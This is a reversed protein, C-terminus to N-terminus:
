EPADTVLESPTSDHCRGVFPGYKEDLYRVRGQGREVPSIEEVPSLVEIKQPYIWAGRAALIRVQGARWPVPAPAADPQHEPSSCERKWPCGDECSCFVGRPRDDHRCTCKVPAPPQAEKPPAPPTDNADVTVAGPVADPAQLRPVAHAGRRPQVHAGDTTANETDPLSRWDALATINDMAIRLARVVQDRRDLAARLREVEGRLRAIEADREADTTM